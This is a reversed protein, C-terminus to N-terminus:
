LFSLYWYPKPVEPSFSSVCGVSSYVPLSAVNTPINWSFTVGTSPFTCSQDTGSAWQHFDPSTSTSM